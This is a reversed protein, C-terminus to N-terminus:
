LTACNRAKFSGMSFIQGEFFFKKGSGLIRVFKWVFVLKEVKPIRNEAEWDAEYVIDKIIGFASYDGLRYEIGVNDGTNPSLFIVEIKNDFQILVAEGLKDNRVSSRDLPHDQWCWGFALLHDTNFSSRSYSKDKAGEIVRLHSISREIEMEYHERSDSERFTQTSIKGLNLNPGNPVLKSIFRDMMSGLGRNTKPLSQQILGLANLVSSKGSSNAGFLFTLNNLAIYKKGKWSRFNQIDKRWDRYENILERKKLNELWNALTQRNPLGLM